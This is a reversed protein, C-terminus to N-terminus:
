IKPIPSFLTPKFNRLFEEEGGHAELLKRQAEKSCLELADVDAINRLESELKRCLEACNPELALDKREEPDTKLNFLQPCEGVYHVYKYDSKKLMFMATYIGQAYYESFVARNTDEEGKAFSWLSKGPLHSDEVNMDAGVGELVTPFIDILSVNTNVIKGEPLDPGSMIMPIGVSGEYMTSKFYVGHDGMTDGHDSSYIIRTSEELNAERIADLIVGVQSDMFSCLAYYIKIANIATKRDINETGCYYRYYDVVPHHPWESQEFQIPERIAPDDRYLDYFEQPAILPFHPTVFGVFLTFPKQQRTGENKLYEAAQRAIARDYRIYDSEGVCAQKIADRFQYRTIKKNRIAGYVDGVGNKINLPIRQDPFGTEPMDGKYHLKGITTVPFGQECLRTGWSPCEGAFAHANDWYGNISAYNGTALAARSPVCIPSNCYANDFSVGKAALQTLNPTKVYPNGYCEMMRKSHQDSFIIVQNMPRMETM